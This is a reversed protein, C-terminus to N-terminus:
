LFQTSYIELKLTEFISYILALFISIIIAQMSYALKFTKSNLNEIKSRMCNKKSIM